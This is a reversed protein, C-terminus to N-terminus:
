EATALKETPPLEAAAVVGQHGLTLPYHTFRVALPMKFCGM